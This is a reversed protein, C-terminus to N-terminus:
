PDDSAGQEVHLGPNQLAFDSRWSAQRDIRWCIIRGVEKLLLQPGLYYDGAQLGCVLYTDAALLPTGM